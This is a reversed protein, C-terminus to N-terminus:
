FLFIDQMNLSTKLHSFKTFIIGIEQQNFNRKGNEKLSYAGKTICLMDAMEQQSFGLAHRLKILKEQKM